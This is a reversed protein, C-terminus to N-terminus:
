FICLGHKSMQRVPQIVIRFQVPHTLGQRFCSDQTIAGELVLPLDHFRNLGGAAASCFRIGAPCGSCCLVYVKPLSDNEAQEAKCEPIQDIFLQLRERM